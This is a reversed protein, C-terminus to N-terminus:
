GKSPVPQLKGLLDHIYNAGRSLILGTLIQGVWPALPSLVGESPPTVGVAAILDLSFALAVVVGVVVAAIRQWLFERQAVWAITEVVAEVLLGVVILKEFM